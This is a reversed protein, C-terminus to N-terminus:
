RTRAAQPPLRHLLAPLSSHEQPTACRPPRCGPSSPTCWNSMASLATTSAIMGAVGDNGERRYGCALQRVKWCRCREELRPEGGVPLQHFHVDHWLRRLPSLRSPFTQFPFEPTSSAIGPDNWKKITGLFIAAVTAGDLRLSPKGELNYSLVVAGICTPIHLVPAGM